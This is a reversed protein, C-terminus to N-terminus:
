GNAFDKTASQKLAARKDSEPVLTANGPHSTILDAVDIKLKEAQAPSILKRPQYAREGLRAIVANEDSWSRSGRGNVLKFGPVEMGGVALAYAHKRVEDIWTEVRSAHTLIGAIREPTLERVDPLTAPTDEIFDQSAPLRGNLPCHIFVPCFQCWDGAVIPANPKRTAEMAPKLVTEGWNLLDQTLYSACRIPGDEHFARPQVVVTGINEIKKQKAKPLLFYAGLGYFKLQSNNEVEVPKMGYKYDVVHLYDPNHILADSTGFAQSDYPLKIKQEVLLKGDKALREEIVQAYLQAGEIMEPTAGLIDLEWLDKGALYEECMKHALTGEAAYATETRTPNIKEILAVSGPCNIWREASSAGLNSHKM